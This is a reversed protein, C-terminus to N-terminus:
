FSVMIRTELDWVPPRSHLVEERFQVHRSDAKCVTNDQGGHCGFLRICLPMRAGRRGVIVARQGGSTHGQDNHFVGIDRRFPSSWGAPARHAAWIFWAPDFRRASIGPLHRPGLAMSFGTECRTGSSIDFLSIAAVM